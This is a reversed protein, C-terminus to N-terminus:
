RSVHRYSCMMLIHWMKCDLYKLNLHNKVLMLEGIQHIHYQTNLHHCGPYYWTKYKVCSKNCIHFIQSVQILLKNNSINVININM